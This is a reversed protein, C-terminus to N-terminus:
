RPLRATPSSPAKATSGGPRRLKRGIGPLAHRDLVLLDPDSVPAVALRVRQKQGGSLKTNRRNILDSLMM